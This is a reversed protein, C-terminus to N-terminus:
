TKFKQVRPALEKRWFDLFGDQDPGVALLTLHDFGADLYKQIAQLHREPDPGCAVTKAVDEPRVFQTAAEFSATTPLEAMVKWGTVGFRAREHAIRVAEAETAAWCLMVEAFCPGRGGALSWAILLDKSPGSTFLGAGKQAALEAAKPGGAAVALRLPQNPRDWLRARDLTFYEGRHSVEKGEWLLQIVDVAEGLMAQRTAPPPYARGVVHENLNEGVGLGLIFRNDSLVALTSAFQAVVAPHYRITPCTVATALGIRETRAAIAGLVTWALPSHGQTVLWPHYHDSIAVFDFGLEEARRANTLLAKPGHEESMLKYGFHAM